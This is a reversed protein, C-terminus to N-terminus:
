WTYFFAPSLFCLGNDYCPQSPLFLFCICVKSLSWILCLMPHKWTYSAICSFLCFLLCFISGFRPQIMFWYLARPIPMVGIPQCITGNSWSPPWQHGELERGLGSVTLMLTYAAPHLCVCFSAPWVAPLSLWLGPTEPGNRVKPCSPVQNFGCWQCTASGAGPSDKGSARAAWNLIWTISYAKGAAVRAPCLM